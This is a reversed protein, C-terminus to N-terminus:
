WDWDDDETTEAKGLVYSAGSGSFFDHTESGSIDLASMIYAPIETHESDFMPDLGLNALAKNANYRLYKKVDETWGVEDYIEEARLCEVAYLRELTERYVRKMHDGVPLQQFKYGIYFGHVGEDRMILRIIDATNTLRGESALRLPAYFGSYFLFSELFVSAARMTQSQFSDYSDRITFVQDQLLDDEEAWRFLENIEETSCFTSFITSYSKAHVCNGSVVPSNGNRTVLFTSPVQVCYVMQPKEKNIVLSQGNVTDRSQPIHTVWSDSFTESRNDERYTTRPRKGALTAVAVIFDSDQKSTTSITVGHKNKHTHDDWLGIEEVFDRAWEVSIEDLSWWGFFEKLRGPQTYELPVGLTYFTRGRKDASGVQKFAWGAEEALQRMREIKREKKFSFRVPITGVKEGTYREEGFTGDANVAVLLKEAPSMSRGSPATAGVRVRRFPSNLNVDLLERADYVRPEWDECQNTKKVKEELLVRHGGSVVQRANGNKSRIEYVEESFHPPVIKPSVFTTEGTSPDYQAVKDGENVEEIVKWGQPTLLETGAAFAEMFAINNFVAREHDTIAYEALRPAGVESQLTDLLTLSAFVKKVVQKEAPTLKAWSPVDNSVPVKEPLWFNSTLRDWVTKDMEDDISNWNIPIYTM